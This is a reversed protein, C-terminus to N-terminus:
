ARREARRAGGAERRVPDLEGIAARRPPAARAPEASHSAAAVGARRELRALVAGATLWTIPTSTANLLMDFLNVALLLCLGLTAPSFDLRKRRRAALLLPSALLGFECLYGIWGLEGFVLVWRGDPVTTREGTVPDRVFGRGWGGWGLLPRENARALLQDENTFRFELSQARASSIREAAAVLRDVPVLDVSRLMPYLLVVLAVGIAAAGQLRPPAFRALPAFLVALLFAGLSNTLALVLGMWATAAMYLTRARGQATRWLTAAAVVAMALFLATWLGHNLFVVARFGGDRKQQGWQFQTFGYIWNNLQPSLRIEVLMLLSYVLGTAVLAGLLVRQGAEDGLYRRALLFPALLVAQLYFAAAADYLSLGPITRMLTVVPDTNTLVTLVPQILFVFALAKLLPNRPLWGEATAGPAPASGRRPHLMLCLAFASVAPVLTKDVAPLLPLDFEVAEPLFLYGLLITWVIARGPELRAFLAAALLPFLFLAAYPLPGPL